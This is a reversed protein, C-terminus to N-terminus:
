QVYIGTIIIGGWHSSYSEIGGVVEEWPSQLSFSRNHTVTRGRPDMPSLSTFGRSFAIRQSDTNGFYFGARDAQIGFIAPVANAGMAPDVPIWGLSDIWFEAWYHNMTQRNRSVLIGAVPQSPIGAARLLTCFLMAALYSDTEKADLVSFIDGDVQDSVFTLENLMWDYIRRSRLYPNQERAIITTVLSRIRPNDSPIQDTSRTFFGNPQATGQRIAQHQVTTEVGFVEVRWTLSIRVESNSALDDLKFLSTERHNAMFPEINGSLLEINRQSASAVPHPIWLYLTNPSEAQGITISLTQSIMYNRKDRFIKTGPRNIVDFYIFPSNDRTTHIGMSGSMAGDPVRVRIERDTWLEYGFESELVDTFEPIRAEAPMAAPTVSTWSFFVGSNGRSSGFGTGTISVVSGVSGATPNIATIQPGHRIQSVQRPITAENAFLVGNSRRGRVHVHVLGADGFEPTRFSIENDQWYLYSTSTPQAGAITVFSEGRENGFFSGTITIPEGMSGIYPSISHIRPHGGQCGTIVIFLVAPISINKM